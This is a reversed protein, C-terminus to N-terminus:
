NSDGRGLTTIDKTSKSVGQFGAVIPIAGEVLVLKIREPAVDIIRAKGHAAEIILDDQLCTYSRAEM